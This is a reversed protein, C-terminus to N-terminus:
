PLCIPKRQILFHTLTLPQLDNLDDSNAILARGNLVREVKTFLTELVPETVVQTGVIAKLVTKASRMMRERIRSMSSATLPASLGM